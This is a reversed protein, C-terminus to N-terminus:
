NKKREIKRITEFNTTTFVAVKRKRDRQSQIQKKKKTEYTYILNETEHTFLIENIILFSQM